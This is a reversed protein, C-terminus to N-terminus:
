GKPPKISDTRTVKGRELIVVRFKKIGFQMGVDQNFIYVAQILFELQKKKKGFFNLDDMFLIHNVKM